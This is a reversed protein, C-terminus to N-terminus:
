LLPSAWSRACVLFCLRLGCCIADVAIIPLNVCNWFLSFSLWCLHCDVALLFTPFVVTGLCLLHARSVVM